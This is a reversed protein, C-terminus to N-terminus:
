KKQYSDVFAKGGNEHHRMVYNAVFFAESLAKSCGDSTERLDCLDVNPTLDIIDGYSPGVREFSSTEASYVASCLGDIKACYPIFTRDSPCVSSTVNWVELNLAIKVDSDQAYPLKGKIQGLMYGIADASDPLPELSLHDCIYIVNKDAM